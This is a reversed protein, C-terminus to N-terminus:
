IILARGAVMLYTRECLRAVKQNLLGLSEAFMRIEKDAPVPALGIENSVIILPYSFNKISDLLSKLYSDVDKQHYFLNGLWVTLCDILAVGCSEIESLIQPLELPVELTHWNQGRERRHRKIKEAMEKNFAQATALFIRPEPFENGLKLAFNSKGSKIGGLVLIKM